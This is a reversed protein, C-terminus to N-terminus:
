KKSKVKALYAKTEKDLYVIALVLFGSITGLPIALLSMIALAVALNKAHRHRRWLLSATIAQLGGMLMVFLGLPISLASGKEPIFVYAFSSVFLQLGGFVAVVASLGFIVILIIIGNPRKFDSNQPM